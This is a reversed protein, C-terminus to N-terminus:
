EYNFIKPNATDGIETFGLTEHTSSTASLSPFMFSLSSELRTNAATDTAKAEVATALVVHYTLPTLPLSLLVHVDDVVAQLVIPCAMESATEPSEMLTAAAVYLSCKDMPMLRLM